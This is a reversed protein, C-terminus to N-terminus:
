FMGPLNVGGTVKELSVRVTEQVKELAENSAALILDQLMEVDSPNVVEKNIIVSQIKNRGTAVVKVMGGGSSGEGTFKEAEDQAKKLELQMRQAQKVIAQMNGPIGNFGKAM